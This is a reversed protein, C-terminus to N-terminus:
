FDGFPDDEAQDFNEGEGFPESGEGDQGFVDDGVDFEAAPPQGQPVVGPPLLKDIRPVQKTLARFVSGLVNSTKAESTVAAAPLSSRDNTDDLDEAFPDFGENTQDSAALGTGVPTKDIPETGASPAPGPPPQEGALMGQRDDAFPDTSQSRIPVESALRFLPGFSPTEAAALQVERPTVIPKPAVPQRRSRAALRALTRHKELLLRDSGQVRQLAEGIGANAGSSEIQAGRKFDAVAAELNGLRKHTLGRFYYIRADHQGQQLLSSLQQQANRFDGNFFLQMGDSLDSATAVSACITLCVLSYRLQHIM